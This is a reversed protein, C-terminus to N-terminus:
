HKNRLFRATPQEPPVTEFDPNLLSGFMVILINMFTISIAPTSALCRGFSPSTQVGNSELSGLGVVENINVFQTRFYAHSLTRSLKQYQKSLM